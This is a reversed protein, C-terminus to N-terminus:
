LKGDSDNPLHYTYAGCMPCGADVSPVWVSKTGGPITVTEKSYSVGKGIKSGLEYRKDEPRSNGDGGKPILPKTRCPFGCKKCYVLGDEKSTKNRASPTPYISKM